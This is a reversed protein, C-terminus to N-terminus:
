CRGGAAVAEQGPTAAGGLGPRATDAVPSWGWATAARQGARAAPDPPYSGGGAGGCAPIGTPHLPPTGGATVHDTATEVSPLAPGAALVTDLVVCLNAIAQACSEVSLGCAAEVAQRIRRMGPRYLAGRLEVDLSAYECRWGGHGAVAFSRLGAVLIALQARVERAALSTPDASAASGSAGRAAGARWPDQPRLPLAQAAAALREVLHAERRLIDWIAQWSIRMGRRGGRGRARGRLGM